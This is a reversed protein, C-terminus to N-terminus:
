MNGFQSGTPSSQASPDVNLIINSNGDNNNNNTYFNADPIDVVYSGNDSNIDPQQFNELLNPTSLRSLAANNNQHEQENNQLISPVSVPSSSVPTKLSANAYVLQASALPRANLNQAPTQLRSSAPPPSRTRSNPQSHNSVNSSRNVNANTQFNSFPINVAVDSLNVFNTNLDPFEANGGGGRFDNSFNNYGGGGGGGGGGGSGGGGGGGGGGYQNNDGIVSMARSPAGSQISHPISRASAMEQELSNANVKVVTLGNVFNPKKVNKYKGYKLNYEKIIEQDIVPSIDQLNKIDTKIISLMDKATQRQERCLSLEIQLKKNIQTYQLACMRHSEARKGLQFYSDISKIIGVFVSGIGLIINMRDYNLDIGTIFGIGSSLIIVPINIINSLKNYKEYSALHLIGLSECEEASQALLQELDNNYFIVNEGNAMKKTESM